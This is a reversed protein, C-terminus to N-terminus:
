EVFFMQTIVYKSGPAKNNELWAQCAVLANNGGVDDSDLPVSYVMNWCSYVIGVAEVGMVPVYNNKVTYLVQVVVYKWM